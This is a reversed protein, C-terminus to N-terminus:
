ARLRLGLRSQIQDPVMRASSVRPYPMEPITRDDGYLAAYEAYNDFARRGVYDIYTEAPAGNALIVDHDETEVHYVTFREPTDALSVWAVAEGNVLASANIVFGDIVLGHDGTVYLDSYNGLAGATIRVLQAREGALLKLLSQRGIWKVPM